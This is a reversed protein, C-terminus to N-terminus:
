AKIIGRGIISACLGTGGFVFNAFHVIGPMREEAPFNMNMSAEALQAAIETPTTQLPLLIPNAELYWSPHKISGM